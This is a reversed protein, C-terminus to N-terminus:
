HYLQEGSPIFLLRIGMCQIQHQGVEVSLIGCWSLSSSLCWWWSAEYGARARREGESTTSSSPRSTTSARAGGGTLLGLGHAGSPDSRPPASSRSSHGSRASYGSFLPLSSFPRRRRSTVPLFSLPHPNPNSTVRNYVEKACPLREIM